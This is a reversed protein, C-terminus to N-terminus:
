PARLRVKFIFTSQIPLPRKYGLDSLLEKVKDSGSFSQFVPDLDHLAALM